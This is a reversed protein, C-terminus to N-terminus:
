LMGLTTFPEVYDAHGTLFLFTIYFDDLIKAATMLVRLNILKYLLFFRSSNTSGISSPVDSLTM